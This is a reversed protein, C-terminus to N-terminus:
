IAKLTNNFILRSLTVAAPAELTTLIYVHMSTKGLPPGVDHHNPLEYTYLRFTLHSLIQFRVSSKPTYEIM